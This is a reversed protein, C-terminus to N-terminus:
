TTASAVFLCEGDGDPAGVPQRRWGGYVATVAFGADDLAARVEAESRFRIAVESTLVDTGDDFVYRMTFAVVGDAVSDVESWIEVGTGDGLTVTRRSDVPNWREWRRATPDYGDFHLTGGPRLARRLDALTARLETDDAIIQSVHSTMLAVDFTPRRPLV